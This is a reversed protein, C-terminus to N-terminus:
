DSTYLSLWPDTTSATGLRGLSWARLARQFSAWTDPRFGARGPTRLYTYQGPVHWWDWHFARPDITRRPRMRELVEAALPVADGLLREVVIPAAWAAVEAADIAHSRKM